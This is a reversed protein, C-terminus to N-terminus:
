ACIYYFVGNVEVKGHLTLMMRYGRKTGCTVFATCLGPFLALIIIIPDTNREGEGWFKNGGATKECFFYNNHM